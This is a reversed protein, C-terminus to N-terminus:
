VQEAQEESLLLLLKLQKTGLDTKEEGESPSDCQGSWAKGVVNVGREGDTGQPLSVKGLLDMTNVWSFTGGGKRLIKCRVSMYTGDRIRGFSVCTGEIVTAM